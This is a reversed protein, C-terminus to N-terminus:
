RSPNHKMSSWPWARCSTPSWIVTCSGGDQTLQRSSYSLTALLLYLSHTKVFQGKTEVSQLDQPMRWPQFCVYYAPTTCDNRCVIESTPLIVHCSRNYSQLNKTTTCTSSDDWHDMCHFTYPHCPLFYSTFLVRYLMIKMYYIYLMIIM